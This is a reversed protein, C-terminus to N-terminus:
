PKQHIQPDIEGAERLRNAENKEWELIKERANQGAPVEHVVEHTFQTRGRDANLKDV